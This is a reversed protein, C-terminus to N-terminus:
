IIEDDAFKLKMVVGRKIRDLHTVSFVDASLDSLSEMGFLGM